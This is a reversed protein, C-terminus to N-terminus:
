VVLAQTEQLGIGWSITSFINLAQQYGWIMAPQEGLLSGKFVTSIWVLKINPFM